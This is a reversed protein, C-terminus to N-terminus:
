EAACAIPMWALAHGSSYCAEQSFSTSRCKIQRVIGCSNDMPRSTRCISNPILLFSHASEDDSAKRSEHNSDASSSNEIMEHLFRRRSREGLGADSNLAAQGGSLNM